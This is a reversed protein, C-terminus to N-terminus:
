VDYRNVMFQIVMDDGEVDIAASDYIRIDYSAPLLLGPPIPIFHRGPTTEAPEQGNPSIAYYETTEPSQKNKALVSYIVDNSDDRIDIQIQRDGHTATSIFEVWISLIQWIELTGVTFTKDSDNATEDSQLEPNVLNRTLAYIVDSNLISQQLDEM